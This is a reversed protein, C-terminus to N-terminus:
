RILDEVTVQYYDALLLLMNLAPIRKGREYNSLAQRTIGCRCAVEQQSKGSKNRLEVLNLGVNSSSM